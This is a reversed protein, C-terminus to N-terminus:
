LSIESELSLKLANKIYGFLLKLKGEKLRQKCLVMAEISFTSRHYTTPSAQNFEKRRRLLFEGTLPM